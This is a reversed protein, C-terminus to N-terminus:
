FEHMGILIPPTTTTITRYNYKCSGICETGIVMLTTLEFENM